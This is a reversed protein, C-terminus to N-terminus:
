PVLSLFDMFYDKIEKKQIVKQNQISLTGITKDKLQIKVNGITQKEQVPAELYYLSNIELDINDVETNKITMMKYPMEELEIQIQKTKGKNIYIRKENLLKWNEFKEKLIKELDVVQYNKHIYEILKISDQTRIKKTDAGLVVTIIDLDGRKCATVLCRNAGNTFGTKVGYVGDLVGLLENTNSIVQPRGNLTVTYTKTSVIEKFKPNQLAYDAMCALEYATTYHGQADLGHPTVFHSNNWGMEKATQNMMEAFGEVSGGVHIALAVATDNGSKLMLGYLLDHVTIKDNVKLGLRSGGTGAAKKDITVVDTLDTNELVVIATMIKTTSAMPVQKLGNKEYLITKSARDFILGIKANLKPEETIPKSTQVTEQEIEKVNIEENDELDAFSVGINFFAFLMINILILLVRIVNKQKLSAQNVMINKDKKRTEM